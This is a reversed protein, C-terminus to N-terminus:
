AEGSAGGSADSGAASPVTAQVQVGEGPATTLDLRGGLLQLRERVDSLGFGGQKEELIAPDFGAGEDQVELVIWGDEARASLTAQKVGAHKVVNFLLERALRFILTHLDRSEMPPLAGLRVKVSLGHREEMHEALWRLTGALDDNRLEPPGLEKSLARTGEVAEELVEEIQDLLATKEELLEGTLTAGEEPLGRRLRRASMEAGYILQQIDDHLIGAIRRRERQEAMTLQSALRRVQATREAVRQELTESLERLVEEAEKRESIDIFSTIAGTLEGQRDKLPSFNVIVPIRSGNPREISVEVNHHPTGDRLVEIIPSQEHPLRTGDPLYLKQSGCYRESPNGREPERDWLQAARRNYHQLVGSRDCVFAAVPLAEFLVRYREESERLAEEAERRETIEIFAVVVGDIKDETTRYPRLRALFYRGEENRVEKEVPTLRRLVRRADGALGDYDFRQTVHALPRGRDAEIINFLDEARPTFRQIRLDRDLFVTAIQTSTLLNQLDSNVQSLEENKNNLEQNVTTLEENMSRLEEKSTELEETTSRLEENMSQLEENSARLEETSTEYEEVTANLERRVEKLEQELGGAEAEHAAADRRAVRQQEELQTEEEEESREESREFVVQAFPAGEMPRATVRVRRRRGGMELSVARSQMVEREDRAQFLATRLAASLAPRVTQLVDLTPAGPAVRLYRDAGKFVHVIEDRENVVVGPPAYEELLQVRVDEFTPQERGPSAGTAQETQERDRRLFPMDAFRPSSPVDERRRYVRHEKHVSRFLDSAEEASEATGLFLYGGPRLAYHFVDFVREQVERQLYILLNRCVVLDLRSFPPDGMLDHEAFIVSERLDPRVRYGGPEKEFHRNLREESLDAAIAEPYFGERATHIADEGLDTAFVQMAPTPGALTGAHEHLLIALSYAEEGTACGTAWVRVTDGADKEEFLKPIVEERLTEFAEEDRFFNTVTILLDKFLAQAEDAHERLHALYESLEEVQNVQMRRGIRRLMTSRKYSSFDHGTRTRLQEFVKELVEADGDELAEGDEPLQIQSLADRYQTLREALEAIPAVVDVMGMQVASRPMGEFEAEEPSQVLTIGGCEKIRKLGTTGGSGTGSLVVGVANGDQSDALSRFFRDIPAREARDTELDSLHLEGGDITMNHGPPIVYIRNPELAMGGDEEVHAVEMATANQLIEPLDSERDPDLHQVLVFAM